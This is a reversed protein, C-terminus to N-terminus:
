IRDVGTLTMWCDLWVLWFNAVAFGIAVVVLIAIGGNTEKILSSM